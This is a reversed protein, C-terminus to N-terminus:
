APLMYLAPQTLSAAAYCGSNCRYDSVFLRRSFRKGPITFMRQHIPHLQGSVAPHNLPPQRRHLPMFFSSPLPPITRERRSLLKSPAQYGPEKEGLPPHRLPARSSGSQRLRVSTFARSLAQEALEHLQSLPLGPAPTISCEQLQSSLLDSKHIFSDGLARLLPHPRQCFTSEPDDLFLDHESDSM